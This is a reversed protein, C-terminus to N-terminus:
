YTVYNPNALEPCVTNIKSKKTANIEEETLEAGQIIEFCRRENVEDKNLIREISKPRSTSLAGIDRREGSANLKNFKENLNRNATELMRNTDELDNRIDIIDEFDSEQQAIVAKQEGVADELKIINGKATDLDKQLAKVYLFGGGAASIIVLILALKLSNFM